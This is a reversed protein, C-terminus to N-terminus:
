ARAQDRPPRISRRSRKACSASVTPETSNYSDTARNNRAPRESGIASSRARRDAASTIVSTNRSDRRRPRADANVITHASRASNRNKCTCPQIAAGSAVATGDIGRRRSSRGRPIAAPRTCRRSSLQSRAVPTPRRSKAIRVKSALSPNRRPSTAPRPNSLKSQRAPSSTIWPFPVRHRAM